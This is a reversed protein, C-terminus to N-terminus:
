GLEELIPFIEDFDEMVFDPKSMPSENQLLEEELSINFTLHSLRLLVSVWGQSNAGIVDTQIRDGIHIIETGKLQTLKQVLQFPKAHPKYVLTEDSFVMHTFYGEIQYQQLLERMTNGYIFGTDSIIILKFDKALKKLTEPVKPYLKPPDALFAHNFQKILQSMEEETIPLNFSNFFQLFRQQYPIHQFGEKDTLVSEYEACHQLYTDKAVDLSIDVGKQLLFEQLVQARATFQFNDEWLTQWLDFCVCKIKPSSYEPQSM